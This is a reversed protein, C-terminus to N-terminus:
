LLFSYSSFCCRPSQILSVSTKVIVNEAFGENELQKQWRSKDLETVNESDQIEKAIGSNVMIVLTNVIAKSIEPYTDLLIAKLKKM